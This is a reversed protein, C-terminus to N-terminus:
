EEKKTNKSDVFYFENVIVSTNYVTEDKKNIYSSKQLNGVVLMRNGKIIYKEIIEATKNFATCDIFDTEDKGNQRDVAITFKLFKTEGKREEIKPDKTIRGMLLVKNM